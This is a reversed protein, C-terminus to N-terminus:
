PGGKPHQRHEVLNWVGAKLSVYRGQKPDYAAIVNLTMRARDGYVEVLGMVLFSGRPVQVDTPQFAKKMDARFRGLNMTLKKPDPLVFGLDKATGDVPETPPTAVPQSADKASSPSMPSPMAGTSPDGSGSSALRQQNIRQIFQEMSETAPADEWRMYVKMAKWSQAAKRKTDNYLAHTAETPYLIRNLRRHHAEEVPRTARRWQLEETLEFGPREYETPPGDPFRFEVWM